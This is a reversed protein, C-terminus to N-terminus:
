QMECQQLNVFINLFRCVDAFINAFALYNITHNVQVKFSKSASPNKAALFNKYEWKM